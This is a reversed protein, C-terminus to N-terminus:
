KNFRVHIGKDMEAQVKDLRITNDYYIKKLITLEEDATIERDRLYEAAEITLNNIVQNQGLPSSFVLSCTTSCSVDEVKITERITEVNGVGRINVDKMKIVKSLPVAIISQM